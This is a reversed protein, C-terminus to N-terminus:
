KLVIVKERIALRILETGTKLGFRAKIQNKHFAITTPKIHLLEGTEKM